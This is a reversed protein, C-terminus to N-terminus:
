QWLSPFVVHTGDQDHAICVDPNVRLLERVIEFHGETSALHLPTCRQSDLEVALKPKRRLLVKTFELHGCSVAVHLPTDNSFCEASSVRNLILPDKELLVNLTEVSGSLCAEYLGKAVVEIENM